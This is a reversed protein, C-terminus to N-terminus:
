NIHWNISQNTNLAKINLKLLIENIDHCTLIGFHKNIGFLHIYIYINNSYKHSYIIYIHKYMSRSM